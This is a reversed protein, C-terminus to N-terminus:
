RKALCITTELELIRKFLALVYRELDKSFEAAEQEFGPAARFKPSPFHNCLEVARDHAKSLDEIIDDSFEGKLHETFSKKSPFNIIKAM